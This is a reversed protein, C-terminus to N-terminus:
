TTSRREIASITPSRRPSRGSKRSKPALIRCVVSQAIPCADAIRQQSWDAKRALRMVDARLREAEEGARVTKTLEALRKSIQDETVRQDVEDATVGEQLLARVVDATLAQQIPETSMTGLM